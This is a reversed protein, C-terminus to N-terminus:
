LIDQGAKKIHEAMIGKGDAAKGNNLKQIAASVEDCFVKPTPKYTTKTLINEIRRVDETVTNLYLQDFSADTKPTGLNPLIM